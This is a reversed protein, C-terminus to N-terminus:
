FAPGENIVPITSSFLYVQPFICINNNNKDLSWVSKVCRRLFLISPPYKIEKFANGFWRKKNHLSPPFAKSDILIGRCLFFKSFPSLNLPYLSLILNTSTLNSPHYTTPKPSLLPLCHKGYNLLEQFSFPKHALTQPNPPTVQFPHSQTSSRTRTKPPM